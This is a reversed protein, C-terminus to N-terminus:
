RQSDMSGLVGNLNYATFFVFLFLFFLCSSHRAVCCVVVIAWVVFM